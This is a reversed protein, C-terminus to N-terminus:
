RYRSGTTSTSTGPVQVPTAPPLALALVCCVLQRYQCQVPVGTTSPAPLSLPARAPLTIDPPCLRRKEEITAWRSWAGTMEMKGWFRGCNYEMFDNSFLTLTGYVWMQMAAGYAAVELVRSCFTQNAFGWRGCISHHIGESWHHPSIRGTLWLAGRSQDKM